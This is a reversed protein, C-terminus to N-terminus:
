YFRVEQQVHASTPPPAYGYSPATQLPSAVGGMTGMGGTVGSSIGGAMGSGQSISVSASPQARAQVAGNVWQLGLQEQQHQSAQATQSPWVGQSGGSISATATSPWSSVYDQSHLSVPAMFLTLTLKIMLLANGAVPLCIPFIFLPYCCSVFLCARVICRRCCRQCRRTWM